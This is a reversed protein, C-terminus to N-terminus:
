NDFVHSLLVQEPVVQESFGFNNMIYINMCIPGALIHQMATLGFKKANATNDCLTFKPVVYKNSLRLVCLLADWADM